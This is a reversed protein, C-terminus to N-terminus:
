ESEFHSRLGKHGLKILCRRLEGADPAELGGKDHPTRIYMCAPLLRETVTITGARFSALFTPHTRSRM